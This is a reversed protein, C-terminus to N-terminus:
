CGGARGNFSCRFLNTTVTPNSGVVERNDASHEYWGLETVIALRMKSKM